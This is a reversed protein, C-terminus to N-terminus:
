CYFYIAGLLGGDHLVRQRQAVVDSMMWCLQVMSDMGCVPQKTTAVTFFVICPAEGGHGGNSEEENEDGRWLCRVCPRVVDM